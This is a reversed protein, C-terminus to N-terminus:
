LFHYKPKEKMQQSMKKKQSDYVDQPKLALGIM